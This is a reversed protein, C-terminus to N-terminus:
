KGVRYWVCEEIEPTDALAPHRFSGVRQMGIKEMVGFSPTNQAVALSIVEELGLENFAFDLCAQAGETAYGKRWADPHLRWGIDICPTFPAKYAQHSIGIFGILRGDNRTEAAFYCYGREAQQAMQRSIFGATQEETQTSPFYRMVDAHANIEAMVTLDTKRWPRLLLRKTLIMNRTATNRTEPQSIAPKPNRHQLNCVM